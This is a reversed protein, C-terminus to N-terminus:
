KKKGSLNKVVEMVSATAGTRSLVYTECIEGIKRLEAPNEHLRNLTASVEATDGIVIAGGQQVLDIAEHFKSYKRNGFIVPMGYTAAELINHLGSGFSGGVYAVNGYRYLSSLMGVNDIILNDFDEGSNSKVYESYFVSKGALIRRWNEMQESKIEHPAIIAKVHFESANLAPILVDMDAQWASGVVVCFSNKVFAAIEPLERAAAAISKVRDFRTDGALSVSKIGANQLLKLSESNQVLIYDFYTLLKRYFGGYSKFFVQDQRFITSFSIIVSGNKKLASLYNYWFEYKIFFAIEPKVIRVFEKANGPTDLPLYCIYDAGNYNKRVEYGSPSFFTLLIFHEPYSKKFEEMVPRGQEFEGLSAAHFWAVPRGSTLEDFSNALIELLNTRGAVGLALKQNFLAGLRMVPSLLSMGADYLFESLM